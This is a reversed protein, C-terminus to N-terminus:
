LARLVQRALPVALVTLSVHVVALGMLPVTWLEEVWLAGLTLCLSALGVILWETRPDTTDLRRSLAQVVWGVFLTSVLIQGPFRVAWTMKFVGALWSLSLWRDPVRAVVIVLVVLSLDPVWWPSPFANALLVHAALGLAFAVTLPLSM